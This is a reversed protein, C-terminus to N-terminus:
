TGRILVSVVHVFYHSEADTPDRCADFAFLGSSFLGCM